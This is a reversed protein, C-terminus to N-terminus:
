LQFETMPAGMCINNVYKQFNQGVDRHIMFVRLIFDQMGLKGKMYNCITCCPVINNIVYGISNDVRDAGIVNPPSVGCYVCDKQIISNFQDFTIGFDLNRHRASSRYGFYRSKPSKNKKLCKERNAM